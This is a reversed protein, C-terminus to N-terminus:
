ENGKFFRKLVIIFAQKFGTQRCGHPASFEVLTYGGHLGM